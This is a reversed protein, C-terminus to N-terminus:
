RHLQEVYDWSEPVGDNLLKICRDVYIKLTVDHQNNLYLENFISLAPEIDGAQYHKVAKNFQEVYDIGSDEVEDNFIIEYIANAKRKGKVKVTDLHRTRYLSTGRLTEESVVIKAGYKKTLNEMRSAINVADSIVTTEMRNTIGITGLILDGVHIGIGMSVNFDKFFTNYRNMRAIEKQMDIAANIADEPSGPFLAMIADGVFKDVFGNNNLICPVMHELFKNLFRFNDTPDMIESISTFNRIDSFLVTMRKEVQDGLQVDQIKEKQLSELFEVPVFRSFSDAMQTQIELAHEQAKIVKKQSIISLKQAIEKDRRMITIKDALAVPLLIVIFVSSVQMSYLTFGTSPIFGYGQLSFIFVGLIFGIWGYLYFRAAKYGKSLVIAGTVTNSISWIFLSFGVIRIRIPFLERTFLSWIIMILCLGIFANYYYYLPKSVKKLRLFSKTFMISFIMAAMTLFIYISFKWNYSDPTFVEALVGNQMFNFMGYFLIFLACYLYSIDKLFISLLTNFIFMIIFFGYFIGLLYNIKFNRESFSTKDEISLPFRMSGETEMRFYFMRNLDTNKDLTFVMNRFDMSRHSFPLHDGHEVSRYQNDKEPIYLTAGEMMPYSFNILYDEINSNDNSIKFRVWFISKSYGYNPIDVNSNKFLPDVQSSLIDNFELERSADEYIQLYEGIAIKEIGEHIIIEQVADTTSAFASFGLLLLTILLLNIRRM